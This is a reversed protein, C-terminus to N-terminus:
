QWSIKGTLKIPWEKPDDKGDYLSEFKWEKIRDNLDKEVEPALKPNHFITKLLKPKGKETDLEVTIQLAKPVNPIKRNQWNEYMKRLNQVDKLIENELANEFGTNSPEEKIEEPANVMRKGLDAKFDKKSIPGSRKDEPLAKKDPLEKDKETKTDAGGTLDPGSRTEVQNVGGSGPGAGGGGGSGSGGPESEMEGMGSTSGVGLGTKGQGGGLEDRSGVKAAGAGPGETSRGRNGGSGGRGPIDADGIGDGTLSSGVKFSAIDKGGAGPLHSTGAPMQINGPTISPM